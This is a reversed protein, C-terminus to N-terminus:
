KKTSKKKSDTYEKPINSTPLRNQSAPAEEINLFAIEFILVANPGIANGMGREGYGLDPPVYFRFKAGEKMLKIGEAWGKIVRSPNIVIPGGQKETSDFVTGDILSGKYEVKVYDTPKAMQGEGEKLVEYQLGSETVNVGVRRANEELFKEGEIKNKEGQKKRLEEDRKMMESRFKAIVVDIEEKKLPAEKETAADRMGIFFYDLNVATLIKKFNKGVDYGIVYSTKNEENDLKVPGEDKQTPTTSNTCAPVTMMFAILLVLMAHRM